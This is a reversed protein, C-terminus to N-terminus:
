VGEHGLLHVELPQGPKLLQATPVDPDALVMFVLKSRTENSYIVPPTYEAQPSIFRVTARLGEPCGECEVAVTQGLHLSPLLRNPAYFRVKVGGAHGADQAGPLPLLALVPANIPVREGPRFSVDFVVADVPALQTQQGVRWQTAALAAGAAQVQAQAAAIEDARAPLRALALQAELEQVRARDGDLAAQLDDLRSASEFGKAVLTRHRQMAASSAALAAQAQALQKRVAEVEQPRRGKRLNALQAQAQALQAQMQERQLVEPEADLVFLAQGAKVEQGRRVALTQIVGAIPASVLVLEAEAYGTLAQDAQPTCGASAVWAALWVLGVLRSCCGGLGHKCDLRM